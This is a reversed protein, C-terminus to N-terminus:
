LDVHVGAQLLTQWIIGEGPLDAGIVFVDLEPGVVVDVAHSVTIHYRLGAVPGVLSEPYIFGIAGVSVDIKPTVQRVYRLDLGFSSHPEIEAVIAIAFIDKPFEDVRLDAGLRIRTRAREIITMGDGGGAIGSAVEANGGIVWQQAAAPRVHFLLAAVVVAWPRTVPRM